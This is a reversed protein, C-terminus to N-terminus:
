VFHPIWMTFLIVSAHAPQGSPFVATASPLLGSGVVVRLVVAVGTGLAGATVVVLAGATVVVLAGAAGVLVLAAGLAGAAGALVLAAGLAM